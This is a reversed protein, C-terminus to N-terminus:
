KVTNSMSASAPVIMWGYRVQMRSRLWPHLFVCRICARSSVGQLTDPMNEILYQDSYHTIRIQILEYGMLTFHEGRPLASIWLVDVTCFSSIRRTTSKWTINGNSLNCIVKLHSMMSQVGPAKDCTDGTPSTDMWVAASRRTKAPWNPLTQVLLPIM